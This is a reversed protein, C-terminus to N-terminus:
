HESLAEGPLAQGSVPEALTLTGNANPLDGEISRLPPYSYALVTAIIALTGMMSFMLGIGRGKGVGFLWGFTEALAGGPMMAPEFVQDALTSVIIYSIPLVFSAIAGVVAFVRGQVNAPVKQQLISTTSGDGIPIGFFNIFALLSLIIVHTNIGVLAVCLGCTLQVLLVGYIKYKPGGWFSMVLSGALMGLGGIFLIVGLRDVTTISLLLPTVLVDISGLLFNIVAFYILLSLLGRRQVIYRWGATAAQLWSERAEGQTTTRPIDPLRVLLLTTVALLFSALDIMIIGQLGITVLLFGGLIPAILQGVSRSLQGLGNARGLHEEPVMLPIAAAYAPMQITAMISSIATAIYIHWAELRQSLLLLVIVFTALASGTDALIMVWRRNWYDALIGAFPAFLIPPLTSSFLVIAFQSVSGTEQYIWIGLAFSTLSSGVLSVLQGFWIWIFFKMGSDLLIKKLM